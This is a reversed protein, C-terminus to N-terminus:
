SLSENERDRRDRKRNGDWGRSVTVVRLNHSHKTPPMLILIDQIVGVVCDDGVVGVEIIQNEVVRM